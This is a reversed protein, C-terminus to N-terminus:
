GSCRPDFCHGQRFTSQEAGQWQQIAAAAGKAEPVNEDEPQDADLFSYGQLQAFFHVISNQTAGAIAADSNLLLACLLPTFVACSLKTRTASELRNDEEEDQGEEIEKIDGEGRHASFEEDEILPCNRFFFWMVRHLHPAFATCVDNEDCALWDALSHSVLVRHYAMESKAFLFIRELTSLSEEGPEGESATSEHDQDIQNGEQDDGTLEDGEDNDEDDDVNDSRTLGLDTRHRLTTSQKEVNWQMSDTGEYDVPRMIPVPAVIASTLGPRTPRASKPAVTKDAQPPQSTGDDHDDEEGDEEEDMRGFREDQSRRQEDVGDDDDDENEQDESTGVSERGSGTSGDESGVDDPDDSLDYGSRPPMGIFSRTKPPSEGLAVMTATPSGIAPSRSRFIHGDQFFIDNGNLNALGGPGKMMNLQRQGAHDQVPKLNSYPIGHASAIAKTSELSSMSSFPASSSEAEASGSHRRRERYDIHNNAQDEKNAGNLHHNDMVGSNSAVEAVAHQADLKTRANEPPTLAKRTPSDNVALLDRHTADNFQSEPDLTSPPISLSRQRPSAAQYDSHPAYSGAGELNLTRKSIAKPAALTLQAPFSSQQAQLKTPSPSQRGSFTPSRKESRKSNWSSPSPTRRDTNM